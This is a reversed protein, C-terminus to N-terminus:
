LVFGRGLLKARLRSYSITQVDSQDDIALFAALGAAQGLVMFEPEVRLSDYAAHSASLCVPVLLNAAEAAKPTIARYSIPYDGSVQHQMSGEQAVIGSQAFVQVRRSDVPYFGRAISDTVSTLGLVDAQTLVTDGVMRRGERIYLQTPFGGNETFEDKCYGFSSMESTFSAPLDTSTTAYWMLGRTYREIESSIQDRTTSDGDPYGDGIGYDDTSMIGAGNLDYKKGVTQWISFVDSLALEHGSSQAVALSHRHLLEFEKPDYDDPKAFSIRNAPDNTVCLRYSYAMLHKDSSGPTEPATPAVHPILGSTPNGPQLYPDLKASIPRSISQVGNWSEGYAGSSERGVTYSVGALQMLDGEYSADIFVQAQYEGGTTTVSSIRTGNKTVSLIPESRHVSIYQNKLLSQLYAQAGKAEYAWSPSGYRRRMDQFFKKALGGIPDASGNLDPHTIGGTTIGGIHSSGELLLVYKKDSALEAAAMVGAATAGYVIVDFSNPDASYTPEVGCGNTFLLLVCTSFLAVLSRFSARLM